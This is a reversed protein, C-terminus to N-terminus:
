FYKRIIEMIVMLIIWSVLAWLFGFNAWVIMVIFLLIWPMWNNMLKDKKLMKLTKQAEEKKAERSLKDWDKSM